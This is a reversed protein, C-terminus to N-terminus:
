DRYAKKKYVGSYYSNKSRLSALYGARGGTYRSYVKRKKAATKKRSLFGRILAQIKTASKTRKRM